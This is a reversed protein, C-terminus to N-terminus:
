VDNSLRDLLRRLRPLALRDRERGAAEKSRIVDALSAVLIRVGRAAEIEIADRHLDAFGETGSPRFTLDLDGARTTLNLMSDPGLNRLFDASCDFALGGPEGETRIRAALSRLADALRDLNEPTRAPVIDVDITVGVDGHLIAAMGGILVFEVEAESLARLMRVPDFDDAKATV